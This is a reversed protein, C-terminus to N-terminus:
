DQRKYKWTCASQRPLCGPFLMSRAPTRPIVRHKEKGKRKGTPVRPPLHSLSRPPSTSANFLLTPPDLPLPRASPCFPTFSAPILCSIGGKYKSAPPKKIRYYSTGEPLHLREKYSRHNSVYMLAALLYTKYIVNLSYSFTCILKINAIRRHLVSNLYPTQGAVGRPDSRPPQCLWRFSNIYGTWQRPLDVSCTSFTQCIRTSYFTLTVKWDNLM